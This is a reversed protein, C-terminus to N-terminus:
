ENNLLDDVRDEYRDLGKENNDNPIVVEGVALSRISGGGVSRNSMVDMTVALGMSKAANELVNGVISNTSRVEGLMIELDANLRELKDMLTNIAAFLVVGMRESIKLKLEVLRETSEIQKTLIVMRMDRHRQNADDENQAMFAYQM